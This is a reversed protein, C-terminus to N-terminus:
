GHGSGEHAARDLAGVRELPQVQRGGARCTRNRMLFDDISLTVSAFDIMQLRRYLGSGGADLLESSQSCSSRDHRSSDLWIRKGSITRWHTCSPYRLPLLSTM